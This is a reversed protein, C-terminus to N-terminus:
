HYVIVNHTLKPLSCKTARLLHRDYKCTWPFSFFFSVGFRLLCPNQFKSSTSFIPYKFSPFFWVENIDYKSERLRESWFTLDWHTLDNADSSGSDKAFIKLDEM